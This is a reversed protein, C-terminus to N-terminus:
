APVAWTAGSLNYITATGNNTGNILLVGASNTTLGSYTNIGSLTVAITRIEYVIGDASSAAMPIAAARVTLLWRATTPPPAEAWREM